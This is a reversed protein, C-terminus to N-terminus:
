SGKSTFSMGTVNQLGISGIPRLIFSMSRIRGMASSCPCLYYWLSKRADSAMGVACAQQGVALGCLVKTQNYKTGKASGSAGPGCGAGLCRETEISTLSALARGTGAPRARSVAHRVCQGPRQFLCREVRTVSREARPHDLEAAPIHRDLVEPIASSCMATRVRAPRNSTLWMPSISIAPRSARFATWCMVVLSADRREM